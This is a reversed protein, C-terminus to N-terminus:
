GDDSSILICVNLYDRVNNGVGNPVDSVTPIVSVMETQM